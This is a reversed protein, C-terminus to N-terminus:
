PAVGLEGDHLLFRRDMLAALEHDHTVM